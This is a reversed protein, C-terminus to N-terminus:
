LIRDLQVAEQPILIPIGSETRYFWEGTESILGGEVPKGLKSAAATCEDVAAKRLPQGSRPCRLLPLLEDPWPNQMLVEPFFSGSGGVM